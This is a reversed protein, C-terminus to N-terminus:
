EAWRGFTTGSDGLRWVRGADGTCGMGYGWHPRDPELSADGWAPGACDSLVQVCAGVGLCAECARKAQAGNTSVIRHTDSFRRAHTPCSPYGIAHSYVAPEAPAPDGGGGGELVTVVSTQCSGHEPDLPGSGPIPRDSVCMTATFRGASGYAHPKSCADAVLRGAGDGFDYSFRLTDEPDPDSSACMDFTITLPALGELAGVVSFSATPKRNQAAPTALPTPQPVAITPETPATLTDSCGWLPWMLLVAAKLARRTSM